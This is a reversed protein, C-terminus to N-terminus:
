LREGAFPEAVIQFEDEYVVYGVREAGLMQVSVGHNELIVVLSRVHKLHEHATDKFWSIAKSQKRHLPPKSNTFRAPKELNDNFWQRILDHQEEEHEYLQGNDRLNGIAHFVGLEHQSNEHIEAVVFRLYM